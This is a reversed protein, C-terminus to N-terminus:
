LRKSGVQRSSTPLAIARRKRKIGKFPCAEIQLAHFDCAPRFKVMWELSEAPARAMRARLWEFLRLDNVAISGSSLRTWSELKTGVGGVGAGAGLGMLAATTRRKSCRSLWSSRAKMFWDRAILEM